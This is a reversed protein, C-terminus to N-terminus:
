ESIMKMYECFAYYERLYLGRKMEDTEKYLQYKSFIDIAKDLSLWKEELGNMIEQQTLKKQSHDTIKACFYESIYRCDEYYEDIQLFCEEPEIIYGTEEQIERICCDNESEDNELGGGPIMYIDLKSEYTLLIKNEKIVIGRCAIREKDYRGFYNEGIIEIKKM